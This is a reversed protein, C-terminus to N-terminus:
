SLTAEYGAQNIAAILKEAKADGQIVARGSDLDVSPTQTVGPVASLAEQVANVCHQCNMGTIQLEIM